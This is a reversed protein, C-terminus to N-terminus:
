NLRSLEDGHAGQQVAPLLDFVPYDGEPLLGIVALRYLPCAQHQARAAAHFQSVLDHRGRRYAAVMRGLSSVLGSVRVLAQDLSMGSAMWRDLVALEGKLERRLRRVIRAIQGKYRAIAWEGTLEHWPDALRGGMHQVAVYLEPDLPVNRDARHAALLLEAAMDWIVGVGEDFRMGPHRRRYAREIREALQVVTRPPIVLM